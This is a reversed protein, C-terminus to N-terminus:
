CADPCGKSCLNSVKKIWINEFLLNSFYDSIVLTNVESITTFHFVMNFLWPLKIRQSIVFSWFAIIQGASSGVISVCAARGRLVLLKIMGNTQAEAIARANASFSFRVVELHIVM